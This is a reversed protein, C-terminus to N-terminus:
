TKRGRCSRLHNPRSGAGRFLTAHAHEALWRRVSRGTLSPPLRDLREGNAINARLVPGTARAADVLSLDVFTAM